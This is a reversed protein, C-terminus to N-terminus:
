ASIHNKQIRNSFDHIYEQETSQLLYIEPFFGSIINIEETQWQSSVDVHLSVTLLDGKGTYQTIKRKGDISYVFREGPILPIREGSFSRPIYPKNYILEYAGNYKSIFPTQRALQIADSITYGNMREGGTLTNIGLAPARRTARARTHTSPTM